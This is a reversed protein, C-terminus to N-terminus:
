RHRYNGSLRRIVHKKLGYSCEPIVLETCIPRHSYVTLSASISIGTDCTGSHRWVLLLDRLNRPESVTICVGCSCARRCGFIPPALAHSIIVTDACNVANKCTLSKCSINGHFLMSARALSARKKEKGKNETKRRKSDCVATAKKNQCVVFQM